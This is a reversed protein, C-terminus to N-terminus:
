KKVKKRLRSPTSEKVAREENAENTEQLNNKKLINRIQRNRALGILGKAAQKKKRFEEAKNENERAGKWKGKLLKMAEKQSVGKNDIRFQKIAEHWNNMDEAQDYDYSNRKNVKDKENKENKRDQLWEEKLMSPIDDVPIQPNDIAFQEVAKKWSKIKSADYDLLGKKWEKKIKREEKEKEKTTKEKEKKIKREEKEKEKPTKEKEKEKTTKEKEKKIKREEKEKEKTTKEKTKKPKTIGPVFLLSEPVEEDEDEDDTESTASDYSYSEDDTESIESTDSEDDSEDDSELSAVEELELDVLEKMEDEDIINENKLNAILQHSTYPLKIKRMMKKRTSGLSQLSIYGKMLKSMTYLDTINKIGYKEMDKETVIFNQDNM